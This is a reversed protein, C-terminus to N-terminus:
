NKLSKILTKLDSKAKILEKGDLKNNDTDMFVVNETNLKANVKNASKIYETIDYHVPDDWTYLCAKGSINIDCIESTNCFNQGLKEKCENKFKELETILQERSLNNGYVAFDVLAVEFRDTINSKCSNYYIQSISLIRVSKDNNNKPKTDVSSRHTKMSNEITDDIVESPLEDLNVGVGRLLTKGQYMQVRANIIKGRRALDIVQQRNVKKISCGTNQIIYGVTNRGSKITSVILFQEIDQKTSSDKRVKNNQEKNKIVGSEHQVPLDDLSIGKGRLLVKDQYLQGECNTVQGRGVLYTVQERTFRSAKGTEISQLHYATVEKGNMYRGIIQYETRKAGM